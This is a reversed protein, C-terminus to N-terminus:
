ELLKLILPSNLHGARVFFTKFVNRKLYVKTITDLLVQADQFLSGAHRGVYSFWGM